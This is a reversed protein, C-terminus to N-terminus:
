ETADISITKQGTAGDYGDLLVGPVSVSRKGSAIILTLQQGTFSTKSSSYSPSSRNDPIYLIASQPGLNDGGINYKYTGDTSPWYTGSLTILLEENPNTSGAVYKTSLRILGAGSLSTRKKTGDVSFGKWVPAHLVVKKNITSSTSAATVNLTYYGEPLVQKENFKFVSLFPPTGSGPTQTYEMQTPVGSISVTVQEATGSTKEVDAGLMVSNAINITDPCNISFNNPPVVILIDYKKTSSASSGVIKIPYTGGTPGTGSQHFTIMSGFTPVGANPDIEAWIGNPLGDVSITVREQNGDGQLVNIPLINSTASSNFNIDHLGNITFQNSPTDSGKTCGTLFLSAFLSLLLVTRLM